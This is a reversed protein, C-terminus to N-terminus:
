ARVVDEEYFIPRIPEDERPMRADWIPERLPPLAAYVDYWLPRDDWRVQGSRILGTM